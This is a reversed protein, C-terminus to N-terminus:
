IADPGIVVRPIDWNVRTVVEYNITELVAALEDATIEQDGQRGLLVAEDELQVGSIDTVDVMTVNMSVRGLVRARRKRILVHGKNSLKRDYGDSYGVPLAAARTPRTAQFTRGYGIYSGAQIEKVQVVKTKWSMVPELSRPGLGKELCVRRTQDSPWLGYTSIGMRVMNFRAQELLYTGASNLLHRIPLHIGRNEVEAVARHFNEVQFQAHTPDGPEDATALHSCLGELQIHASGQILGLAKPLLKLLMGRRNMGTEVKLHVRVDRSLKTSVTVLSQLTEVNFVTLRFDNEVVKPLESLQVNGLLLIPCELGLERLRMGEGLSEVVLWDAGAQLAITAIEALGHGYANAKVVTALLVDPGVLKRFRQINGRLAPADIEVWTMHSHDMM